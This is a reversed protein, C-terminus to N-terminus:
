LFKKPMNARRRKYIVYSIVLLVQFAIVLFIFFGMRPTSATIVIFAFLNASQRFVNEFFYSVM